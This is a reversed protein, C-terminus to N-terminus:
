KKRILCEKGRFAFGYKRINEAPVGRALLAADYQKEEIQRLANEATDELSSERKMREVSGTQERREKTRKQGKRDTNYLIFSWVVIDM